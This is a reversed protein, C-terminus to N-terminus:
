IYYGDRGPHDSRERAPLVPALTSIVAMNTMVADQLRTNLITWYAGGFRSQSWQSTRAVAARAARDRNTERGTEDRSRVCCDALRVM